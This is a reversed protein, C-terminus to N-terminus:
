ALDIRKAGAGWFNERSEFSSQRHDGNFNMAATTEPRRGIAVTLSQAQPGIIGQATGLISDPRVTRPDRIYTRIQFDRTRAVSAGEGDPDILAAIWSNSPDLGEPTAALDRVGVYLNDNDHV